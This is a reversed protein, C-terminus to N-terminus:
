LHIISSSKVHSKVFSNNINKDIKNFLLLWSFFIFFYTIKANNITKENLDVNDINEM